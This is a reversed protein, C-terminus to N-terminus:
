SNGLLLFSERLEVEALFKLLLFMTFLDVEILGISCGGSEQRWDGESSWGDSFVGDKVIAERVKREAKRGAAMIALLCVMADRLMALVAM